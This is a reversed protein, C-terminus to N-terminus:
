LSTFKTRGSVLNYALPTTNRQPRHNRLTQSTLRQL